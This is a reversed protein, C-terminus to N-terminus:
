KPQPGQWCIWLPKAACIEIGGSGEGSRRSLPYPLRTVMEKPCVQLFNLRESDWNALIREAM